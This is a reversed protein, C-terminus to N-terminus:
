RFMTAIARRLFGDPRYPPSARGSRGATAFTIGPM